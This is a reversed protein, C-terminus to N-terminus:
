NTNQRNRLDVSDVWPWHKSKSLPPDKDQKFVYM